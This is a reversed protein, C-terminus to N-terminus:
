RCYGGARRGTRSRAARHEARQAGVGEVAARVIILLRDGVAIAAHRDCREVRRRARDISGSCTPRPRPRRRPWSGDAARGVRGASRPSAASTAVTMRRAAARFGARNGDGDLLRTVHGMKRGPRPRARATSTSTRAGPRRPDRALRRGRRRDSQWRSAAARRPRDRRAAPRLDRPHAERVALDRAGEITWHGSNHVRPAM